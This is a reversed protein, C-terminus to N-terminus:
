QSTRYFQRAQNASVTYPSTAGVVPAYGSGVNTSSELTGTYTITILGGQRSLAITPTTPVSAVADAVLDDVYLLTGPPNRPDGSTPDPNSSNRLWGVRIDLTAAGAPPTLGVLTISDDKGEPHGVDCQSWFPQPYIWYPHSFVRDIVAGAANRWVIEHHVTDMRGNANGVTVWNGAKVHLYVNYAKGVQVPIRSAATRQLV